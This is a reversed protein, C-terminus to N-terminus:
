WVKKCHEFPTLEDFKKGGFKGAICYDMALM